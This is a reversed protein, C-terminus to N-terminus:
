GGKIKQYVRVYDVEMRRPFVTAGPDGGNNGGIALNLLMYHPQSFPNINTGDKNVLENLAVKNLLQDDMYLAIGKDDWDMRWIHFESAWSNGGLSDMRFTKTYWEAKYQVATGYAVNALLKNSYYEMIDIEGNSPWRGNIGLTWWAPWLGPDIDIRGRMIFRGYQWSHKGKTHLSSSTYEITKRKKRWDDSSNEYIPNEKLERRGEIILLGNECRANGEQYWQAENNRVFGTEYSWKSTDPLGTYNFEDSWILQFGKQDIASTASKLENTPRCSNILILITFVFTVIKM